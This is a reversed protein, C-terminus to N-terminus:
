VLSIGGYEITPPTGTFNNTNAKLINNISQVKTDQVNLMKEYEEENEVISYSPNLRKILRIFMSHSTKDIQACNLRFCLNKAYFIFDLNGLSQILPLKKKLM